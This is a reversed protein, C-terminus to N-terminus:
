KVDDFFHSLLKFHTVACVKCAHHHATMVIKEGGSFSRDQRYMKGYM